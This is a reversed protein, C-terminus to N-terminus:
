WRAGRMTVSGREIVVGEIEIAPRNKPTFSPRIIHSLMANVLGDLNFNYSTLGHVAAEPVDDFGIVSIDRPVAVGQEKLFQLALLAVEDNACVWATISEDEHAKGFLPWLREYRVTDRMTSVAIAGMRESFRATRAPDLGLATPMGRAVARAVAPELRPDEYLEGPGAVEDDAFLTVGYESGASAFVRGLERYRHQSWASKHAAGIYAVRRHGQQMLYQGTVRPPTTGAAFAFVRALRGPSAWQVLEYQSEEDLVSVPKKYTLAHAIVDRVTKWFGITWVVIGLFEGDLHDHIRGQGDVFRPMPGEANYVRVRLQAGARVCARELQRLNEVAWPNSLSLQGSTEGWALLYV